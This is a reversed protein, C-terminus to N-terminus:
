KPEEQRTLPFLQMSFTYVESTNGTELELCLKQKFDNIMKKAKAFKKPDVAMTISSYERKDVAVSEIKNLALNLNQKHYDRIVSSPIDTTTTLPKSTQVFGVGQIKVLGMKKLRLFAEQALSPEVGLRDAIWNTDASNKKIHALSLIAFHVWDSILKFEDEPLIQLDPLHPQGRRPHPVMEEILSSYAEEDLNLTDIIKSALKPTLKKRGNILSSLQAPSIELMKSFARLSFRPNRKQRESLHNKLLVQYNKVQKPKAHLSNMTM